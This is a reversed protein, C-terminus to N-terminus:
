YLELELAKSSVKGNQIAVRGIDMWTGPREEDGEYLVLLGGGASVRAIFGANAVIRRAEEVSYEM